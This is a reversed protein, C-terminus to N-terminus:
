TVYSLIVVESLTERSLVVRKYVRVVETYINVVVKRSCSKVNRITGDMDRCLVNRCRSEQVLNSMHRWKKSVTCNTRFDAPLSSFVTRNQRTIALVFHYCNRAKSYPCNFRRQDQIVLVLLVQKSHTTIKSLPIYVSRSEGGNSSPTHRDSAFCLCIFSCFFCVLLTESPHPPPRPSSPPHHM